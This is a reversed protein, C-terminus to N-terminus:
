CLVLKSFMVFLFFMAFNILLLILKVCFFLWTMNVLFSFINLVVKINWFWLLIQIDLFLQKSTNIQPSSVLEDTQVNGQAWLQQFPYTLVSQYSPTYNSRAGKSKRSGPDVVWRLSMAVVHVKPSTHRGARSVVPWIQPHWQWFQRSCLHPIHHTPLLHLPAINFLELLNLWDPTLQCCTLRDEVLSSSHQCTKAHTQLPCVCM